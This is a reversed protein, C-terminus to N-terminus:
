YGREEEICNEIYVIKQRIYECQEIEENFLKREEIELDDERIELEKEVRWIHQTLLSSMLKYDEYTFEIKM